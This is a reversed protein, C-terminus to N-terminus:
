WTSDVAATSYIGRANYWEGAHIYLEGNDTIFLSFKASAGGGDILGIHIINDGLPMVDNHIVAYLSALELSSVVTIESMIYDMAGFKVNFDDDIELRMDYVNSEPLEKDDAGFRPIIILEAVERVGIVHQIRGFTEEQKQVSFDYLLEKLGEAHPLANNVSSTDSAVEDTQAPVDAGGRLSSLSLWALSCVVVIIAICLPTSHKQM